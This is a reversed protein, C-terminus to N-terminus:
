RMRDNAAPAPGRVRRERPDGVRDHRTPTADRGAGAAGTFHEALAAVLGRGTHEAAQVHVPLGRREAEAATVPGIVAVCVDGIGTTRRPAFARVASPSAFTLVDVAGSAVEERLAAGAAADTVTRYAEVGDVTAGRQELARALEPGAGRARPWLVRAGDLDAGASLADALGGSLYEGPLIDVRIGGAELTTATAPGVAAIRVAALDAADGGAAVLAEIFRDAANASTFVVWDYDGISRVAADLRGPRVPGAIRILPRILVEAGASELARRVGAAQAASRTVVVRLGRLGLDDDQPKSHGAIM